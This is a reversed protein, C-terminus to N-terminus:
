KFQFEPAVAIADDPIDGPHVCAGSRGNPSVFSFPVVNRSRGTAFINVLM